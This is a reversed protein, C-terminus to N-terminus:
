SVKQHLAILETVLELALVSNMLHDQAHVMVLTVKTKGEGADQEILKTQVLHAERLGERAQQMLQQAEAFDGQKARALAKFALSKAQGANVILGMVVEELEDGQQQEPIDELNWM